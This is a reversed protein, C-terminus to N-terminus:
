GGGAAEQPRLKKNLLASASRAVVLDGFIALNTGGSWTATVLRRNSCL